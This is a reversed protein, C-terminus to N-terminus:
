GKGGEQIHSVMFPRPKVPSITSLVPSLDRDKCAVLNLTSEQGVTSWGVM